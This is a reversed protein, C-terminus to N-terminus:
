KILLGTVYLVAMGAVVGSALTFPQRPAEQRILRAIEYAVELVAGAGISLFLVALVPSYVLGGAWTGVIAPAGGILGLSALLGLSPKQRVIPAIIGLGETINQLIFGIVLFTGLAAAGISYAAGIALGEGLNHLGIGVAIMLAIRAPKAEQGQRGAIAALVLFTTVIGLGILGVGQFPGGIAAAAELAESAADIGLFLLLGITLSMLWLFARRGLKRLAPYWFIGLFVPIVGVYIGILTFGGLTATDAQRTEAAAEIATDFPVSNSSFLRIQYAEAQVWPYPITIVARGLRPIAPGPSLRFPVFADRINIQAITLEQPSTNRVHLEILEPKVLTREFVLSEIPAAPQVKLGGTALFAAIVGALLVLPLAFLAATRWPSRRDALTANGM